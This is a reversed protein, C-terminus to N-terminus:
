FLKKIVKSPNTYELGRQQYKNEIATNWSDVQFYVFLYIRCCCMFLCIFWCCCMIFASFMKWKPLEGKQLVTNGTCPIKNKVSQFPLLVLLFSFLYIFLYIHPSFFFLVCIEFTFLCQRTYQSSFITRQSNSSYVLHIYPIFRIRIFFFEDVFQM